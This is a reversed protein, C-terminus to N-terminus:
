ILAKKLYNLSKNREYELKHTHALSVYCFDYIKNEIINKDCLRFFPLLEVKDYKYKNIFSNKIEENQVAVTDVNKIFLKIYLQQLSYKILFKFSSKRLTSFPMLLYPNHFYVISNKVKVLPPLNGFYLANILPKAFLRIKEKVSEIHVVERNKKPQIMQISDDVYVVNKLNPYKNEIYEVLYMLLELGGGSKINPAIINIMKSKM